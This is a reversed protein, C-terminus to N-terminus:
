VKLCGVVDCGWSLFIPIFRTYFNEELSGYGKIKRVKEQFAVQQRSLRAHGSYAGSRANSSLHLQCKDLLWGQIDCMKLEILTM